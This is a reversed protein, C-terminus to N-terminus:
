PSPAETGPAAPAPGPELPASGDGGEPAEAEGAEALMRAEIDAFEGAAAEGRRALSLGEAIADAVRATVLRISRIADDNGPLVFDIGDPDCNTDVLAVIPVKLKQAEALAIHERLTDVIFVARPLEKMTKIGGIFKELRLREKERQTAEKKSLLELTGDEKMRDLEGLRRISRKITSFNTLTGGLWRVTVHSMEVRRAHEAIIDRAQRKTGVFLVRGGEAAVQRLFERAEEFLRVTKQLDIIYIGNRAGYIYVKMKPNWRKTQHGFHTGAELLERITLSAM